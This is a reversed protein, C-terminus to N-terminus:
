NNVILTSTIIQEGNQLGVIYTGPVKPAFFVPDSSPSMEYIKLIRGQIDYIVINGSEKAAECYVIAETKVPNPFLFFEDIMDKTEMYREGTTTNPDIDIYDLNIDGKDFFVRLVHEGEPITVEPGEFSSFNGWAGTGPFAIEGTLSLGDIELHLSGGELGSAVRFWTATTFEEICSISYELWEGDEVYGIAYQDDPWSEIDVDTDIRYAKGTNGVDGDHYSVGEGGHDFDEGQIRGPVTLAQGHYPENVGTGPLLEDNPEHYPTIKIWDVVMSDTEFNAEGAWTPFWNGVWLKSLRNPINTEILEKLEDDYYFSVSPTIGEGGTHWDFRYLHFEGDDQDYFENNTRHTTVKEYIWTNCYAQDFKGNDMKVEIDIEHNINGSDANNYTEYAFTWFASVAGERPLIKARFEYSGSCYEHKSVLCSGVRTNRGHGTIDGTYLEGNGKLILLGDKISALEPVLGGHNPNEPDGPSWTRDAYGWLSDSKLSDTFDDFIVEQAKVQSTLFLILVLLPGLFYKKHHM